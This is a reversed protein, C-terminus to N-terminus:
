FLSGRNKNLGKESKLTRLSNSSSVGAEDGTEDLNGTIKIQFDFWIEMGFNHTGCHTIMQVLM